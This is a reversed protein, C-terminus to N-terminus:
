LNIEGHLEYYRENKTLNYATLNDNSIQNIEKKLSGASRFAFVGAGVLVAASVYGVVQVATANVGFIQNSYNSGTASQLKRAQSTLAIGGPQFISRDVGLYISEPVSDKLLEDANEKTKQWGEADLDGTILLNGLDVYSLLSRQGPSMADIIPYLSM